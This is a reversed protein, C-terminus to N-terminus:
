DNESMWGALLGTLEDARELNIGHTGGALEILRARPIGAALLRSSGPPVLQDETGTIVLTRAGIQALRARTDHSMGAAIQGAIGQMSFGYSVTRQYSRRLYDREKELFAPSFVLPMLFGYVMRPDIPVSGDAAAALMSAATARPDQTTARAGEDATRDMGADSKAFTAILTLSKVRRAHRLAVEQAVAGGLSMGVVHARPIGATEMTAAVDDAMQATTYPGKPKGSRGVGRNDLVLVRRQRALAPLQREWGNAEIALGMILVAPYGRGAGHIEYYIDTDPLHATPM